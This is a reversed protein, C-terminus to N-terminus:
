PHLSFAFGHTPRPLRPLFCSHPKPSLWKMQLGSCGGSTLERRMTSCLWSSAPSHSIRLFMSVSTGFFLCQGGVGEGENGCRSVPLDTALHASPGCVPSNM